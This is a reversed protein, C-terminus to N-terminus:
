MSALVEVLADGLDGFVGQGDAEVVLRTQDGHRDLSVRGDLPDGLFRSRVRADFPRASSTDLRGNVSLIRLEAAIPENIQLHGHVRRLWVRTPVGAGALLRVEGRVRRVVIDAGPAALHVRVDVADIRDFRVVPDLSLGRGGANVAQFARDIGIEGDPRQTIELQARIGRAHTIRVEGDLFSWPDITIAAHEVHLVQVGREDRVRFDRAAVTWTRLSLHEVAGVEMDGRMGESIAALVENVVTTRAEPSRCTADITLLGLFWLAVALAVLRRATM